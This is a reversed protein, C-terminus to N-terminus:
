SVPIRQLKSRQKKPKRVNKCIFLQEIDDICSEPAEWASATFWLCRIPHPSGLAVLYSTPPSSIYLGPLRGTGRPPLQPPTDMGLPACWCPPYGHQPSSGQSPLLCCLFKTLTEEEWKPGPSGASTKSRIKM